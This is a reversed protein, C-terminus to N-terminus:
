FDNIAKNRERRDDDLSYKSVQAFGNDTVEDNKLQKLTKIEYPYAKWDCASISFHRSATSEAIKWAEKLYISETKNFYASKEM